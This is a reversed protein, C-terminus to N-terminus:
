TIQELEPFPEFVAKDCDGFVAEAMGVIRGDRFAAVMTQVGIYAGFSNKGNMRVCVGPLTGGNVLGVFVPRPASIQGSKLSYPDKMTEKVYAIVQVKYDAPVQSALAATTAPSTTTCGALLLSVAVACISTKLIIGGYTRM